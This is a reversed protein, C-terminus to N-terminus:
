VFFYILYNCINFRRCYIDAVITWLQHVYEVYDQASSFADFILIEIVLVECENIRGLVIIM